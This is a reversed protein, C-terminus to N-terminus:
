ALLYKGNNSQIFYVTYGGPNGMRHKSLFSPSKVLLNKCAANVDAVSFPQQLSGNTVAAKIAISIKSQRAM